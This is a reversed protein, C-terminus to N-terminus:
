VAQVATAEVAGQALGIRQLIRRFRPDERLPDVVPDVKIWTLRPSRDEEAQELWELAAEHNGLGAHIKAFNYPSVYVSDSLTELEQLLELAKPHDEMRAYCYSLAAIASAKGSALERTKRFCALAEDFRCSQIYARGLAWQAEYLDPQLDVALQLQLIAQEYERRMYLLLGLHTNIIVSSPDRELALQFMELAEDLRGLPLLCVLALWHPATALHPNMKMAGRLSQEAGAWDRDYLAQITGVATHAEGLQDDIALAQRACERAQTMAVRPPLSESIALAVYSNALGAYAPAYHEDEGVAERFCTIAKKIEQETRRDWHDLAKLYRNHAKSAEPPRKAAHDADAEPVAAAAVRSAAGGEAEAHLAGAIARAIEDQIALVDDLPRDYTEAWCDFGSAADVLHASVRVVGGIKQVSGELVRGVQLQRAIERIDEPKGKFQAASTRAAVSLGKIKALANIIEQTVGDCFYEQKKEPSLDEFPLVAITWADSPPTAHAPEPAPPSAAALVVETQQRHFTPRYGRKRLGLWVPDSSGPGDYYDRIKARLRGAEVRVIPDVRTDFSEPKDFVHLGISYEKLSTQEGALSQEVAYRLFRSLREARQFTESSLIKELQRRIEADTLGDPLIEVDQPPAARRPKQQPAGPNVPRDLLGQLSLLKHGMLGAQMTVNPIM